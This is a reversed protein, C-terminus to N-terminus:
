RTLRSPVRDRTERLGLHDLLSATPGGTLGAAVVAAGLAGEYGDGPMPLTVLPLRQGLARTVEAHRGGTVIVESVKHFSLMALCDKEVAEWLAARACGPSAAEAEAFQRLDASRASEEGLAGGFRRRGPGEQDWAGGTGDVIRGAKLALLHLMGTAAHLLIFDCAVLARGTTSLFHLAWAAACLVDSTGLDARRLRRHPPVSPLLTAAPICYARLTRRRAETLFMALDDVVSGPHDVTMTAIDRDLLDGARTIPVGYGSPLVIPTAPHLTLLDELFQWVDGMHPFTHLDAARDEDWVAVKWTGADYEMGLALM